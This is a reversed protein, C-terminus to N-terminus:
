FKHMLDIGDGRRCNKRPIYSFEYGAPVLNNITFQDTDTGLWTETLALVDVGRSVVYDTVHM